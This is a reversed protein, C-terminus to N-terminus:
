IQSWAHMPVKRLTWHHHVKESPSGITSEKSVTM